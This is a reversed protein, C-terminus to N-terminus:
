ATVNDGRGFKATFLKVIEDVTDALDHLTELVPQESFPLNGKPFLLAFEGAIAQIFRAPDDTENFPHEDGDQVQIPHPSFGSGVLPIIQMEDGRAFFGAPFPPRKEVPMRSLMEETKDVWGHLKMSAAMGAIIFASPDILASTKFFVPRILEHKDAIDLLHLERLAKNGEPFPKLAAIADVLDNGIKAINNQALRDAFGKESHGIPFRFDTGLDRLRAVDCVLLDLAARLNHAADGVMCAAMRPPPKSFSVARTQKKPDFPGFVLETEFAFDHAATALAEIHEWAREVKLAPGVFPDYLM